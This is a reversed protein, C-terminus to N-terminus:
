EANKKNTSGLIGYLNYKEIMRHVFWAIFIGLAMGSLVDTPFHVFLYLRSLGMLVAFVLMIVGWRRDMFYLSVATEFAALTHGSPFSFDGPIAILLPVAKDIWCPRDRMILNKLVVNGLLFGVALSLLISVGAKRTRKFCFLLLGLTMFFWGSNGLSTFAPVVKDLLPNHLEQFFYLISFELSELGM